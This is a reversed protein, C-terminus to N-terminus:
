RRRIVLIPAVFAPVEYMCNKAEWIAGIGCGSYGADDELPCTPVM